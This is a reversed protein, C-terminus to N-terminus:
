LRDRVQFTSLNWGLIARVTIIHTFPANMVKVVGDAFVSLLLTLMNLGVIVVKWLDALNSTHLRHLASWLIINRDVWLYSYSVVQSFQGDRQLLDTLPLHIGVKYLSMTKYITLSTVVIDFLAIGIWITIASRGSGKATALICENFPQPFPLFIASQLPWVELFLTLTYTCILVALVWRKRGYLAYTRVM